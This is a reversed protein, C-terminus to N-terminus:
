YCSILPEGRPQRNRQRNARAQHTTWRFLHSILLIFTLVISILLLLDAASAWRPNDITPPWSKIKNGGTKITTDQFSSAVLLSCSSLGSHCWSYVHSRHHNIVLSLSVAPTSQRQWTWSKSDKNGSRRQHTTWRFLLPFWSSLLFRSQDPEARPIRTTAEDQHTTWRFLLPFWSSLLFRSRLSM